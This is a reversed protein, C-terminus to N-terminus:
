GFLLRLILRIQYGSHEFDLQLLQDIVNVLFMNQSACNRCDIDNLKFFTPQQMCVNEDEKDFVVLWVRDFIYVAHDIKFKRIWFCVFQGVLRNSSAHHMTWASSCKWIDWAHFIAFSFFLIWLLELGLYHRIYVFIRNILTFIRPAYNQNVVNFQVITPHYRVIDIQRGFVICVDVNLNTVVNM